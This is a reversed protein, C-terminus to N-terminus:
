KLNEIVAASHMIMETMKFVIFDGPAVDAFSGTKAKNTGYDYFAVPTGSAMTRMCLEDEGCKVRIVSRDDNIDIVRGSLIQNMVKIEAPYLYQIGDSSSFWVSIEEAESRNNFRVSILDGIKVNEISCNDAMTIILDEYAGSTVLLGDAAVGESNLVSLKNTVVCMEQQFRLNRINQGDNIIIIEPVRFKDMNYPTCLYSNGTALRGSSLISYSDENERDDPIVLIKTDNGINIDYYGLERLSGLYPRAKKGGSILREADVGEKTIPTEIRNIKGESNIGFMILTPEFTGTATVNKYFQQASIAKEGNVKVKKCLEKTDWKGDLTFIRMQYSQSLGNGTEAVARMYAYETDSINVLECSFIRGFVDFYMLYTKGNEPLRERKLGVNKLLAKSFEYTEGDVEIEDKRTNVSNVYGTTLKDSVYIKLRGSTSKPALISLVNNREIDALRIQEGDKFVSIKEYKGYNFIDSDENAYIKGYINEEGLNLSAVAMEFYDEIHCVEYKGDNDNDVFVLKGTDPKLTEATFGDFHAGNYIVRMSPIISITKLKNGVYYKVTKLNESVYDIDKPEIEIVKQKESKEIHLIQDLGSSPHKVYGEVKFGLLESYDNECRYINADIGYIGDFNGTEGYLSADPTQTLIGEIEYINRYENIVSRETKIYSHLYGDTHLVVETYEADVANLAIRMATLRDLVKEPVIKIGDLIGNKEAEAMYQSDTISPNDVKLVPLVGTLEVFLKVAEICSVTRSLDAEDIMYGHSQMVGSVEKADRINNVANDSKMNYYMGYLEGLTLNDYPSLEYSTDKGMIGLNKLINFEEFITEQNQVNNETEESVANGAFISMESLVICLATFILGIRKLIKNKM